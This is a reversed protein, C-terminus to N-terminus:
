GDTICGVDIIKLKDLEPIDASAGLAGKEITALQTQLDPNHWDIGLGRALSEVAPWDLNKRQGTYDNILWRNESSYFLQAAQIHEPFIFFTDKVPEGVDDVLM